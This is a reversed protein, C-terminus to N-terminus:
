SQGALGEAIRLRGNFAEQLISQKLEEINEVKQQYSDELRRVNMGVTTLIEAIEKQKSLSPIPIPMTRLDRISLNPQMLTNVHEIVYNKVSHSCLYSYLFEPLILKENVRISAVRQNLLAGDYEDPVIAVKLGSDIITRTLAIVIDGTSIRVKSHTTSFQSPLYNGNGQVFKQVGVNTIKISKVGEDDSFDTSSFAFGNIIISIAELPECDCTDLLDSIMSNSLSLALEKANKREDAVQNLVNSINEFAEDLISVILQQEALPPFRIELTKLIAKNLTKGKVKEKGVAAADWDFYHLFYYLYERSIMKEDNISLAAIAENTYLERGAIALRGLTLKFSVLLTKEKVPKCLQKGEESIREKSNSVYKGETNKLDAVSLWVNETICEEDWMSKNNRPPTKGLTINCIEGLPKTQWDNANLVISQSPM